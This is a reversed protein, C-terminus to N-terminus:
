ARLVLIDAHKCKSACLVLMIIKSHLNMNKPHSIKCTFVHRHQAAVKITIVCIRQSCSLWLTCTTRTTCPTNLSQDRKAQTKCPAELGQNRTAHTKCTPTLARREHQEDKVFPKLGETENDRSFTRRCSYEKRKYACLVFMVIKSQLYISKLHSTNYIFCMWTSKGSRVYCCIYDPFIFIKLHLTSPNSM